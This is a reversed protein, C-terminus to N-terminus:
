FVNSDPAARSKWSTARLGGPPDSRRSSSSENLQTPETVSTETAESKSNQPAAAASPSRRADPQHTRPTPRAPKLLPRRCQPIPAGPKALAYALADSKCLADPACNCYQRWRPSLDSFDDESDCGGDCRLLVMDDDDDDSSCDGSSGM